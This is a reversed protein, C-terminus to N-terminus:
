NTDPRPAPLRKNQPTESERAERELRSRLDKLQLPFSPHHITEGPKLERVSVVELEYNEGALYFRAVIEVHSGKSIDNAAIKHIPLNLPQTEKTEPIWLSPGEDSTFFIGRTKFREKSQMWPHILPSPLFRADIWENTSESEVGDGLAVWQMDSSSRYADKEPDHVLERNGVVKGAEIKLLAETEYQSGFGMHVHRVLKGKPLRLAGTFWSAKAPYAAKTGLIKDLPILEETEQFKGEADRKYHKRYLATLLLQDEEIKWHGIYGRWNATSGAVLLDDPRPREDSFAEELPTSFMEQKEGKYEIQEPIQDTAFALAASFVALLLLLTTKM